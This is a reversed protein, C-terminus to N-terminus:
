QSKSVNRKIVSEVWAFFDLYCVGGFLSLVVVSIPSLTLGEKSLFNPVVYSICLVILGIIGGQIFILGLNVLPPLVQEKQRVIDNIVKGIAGIAGFCIATIAFSFFSPVGKLYPFLNFALKQEEFAELKAKTDFPINSAGMYTSTDKPDKPIQNAKEFEIDNELIIMGGMGFYLTGLLMFLIFLLKFINM